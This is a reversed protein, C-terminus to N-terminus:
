WKFYRYLRLSISPGIRKGEGEHLRLDEFLRQGDEDCRCANVARMLSKFTPFHQILADAVPPTIRPIQCLMRLWCDRADKGSKMKTDPPLTLQSNGADEANHFRDWTNKAVVRTMEVIFDVLDALGQAELTATSFNVKIGLDAAQLFFENELDAATITTRQKAPTETTEQRVAQRFLRNLQATHKNVARRWNCFYLVCDEVGAFPRLVEEFRQKVIFEDWLAEADLLFLRHSLFGANGAPLSWRFCASALSAKQKRVIKTSQLCESMNRASFRREIEAFYLEHASKSMHLRIASITDLRNRVNVPKVPTYVTVTSAPSSQLIRPSHRVLSTLSKRSKVSKPSSQTMRALSENIQDLWTAARTEMEPSQFPSNRSLLSRVPSAASFSFSALKSQLRPSRRQSPSSLQSLALPSSPISKEFIGCKERKSPSSLGSSLDVRQRWSRKFAEFDSNLARPRNPSSPSSPVVLSSSPAVFSSSTSATLDILFPM